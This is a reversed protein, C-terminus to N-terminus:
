LFEQTAVTNGFEDGAVIDRFVALAADVDTTLGTIPYRATVSFAIRSALPKGDADETGYVVTITSEQVTKNGSPVTRKQTVIRPAQVTHSDLSYTRSDGLTSFETLATTMAAM